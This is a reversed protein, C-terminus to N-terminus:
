ILHSLRKIGKFYKGKTARNIDEHYSVASQPGEGAGQGELKAISEQVKNHAPKGDSEEGKLGM